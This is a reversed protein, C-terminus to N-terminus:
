PAPHAAFTELDAPASLPIETGGPGVSKPGSASSLKRAIRDLPLRSAAEKWEESANRPLHVVMRSRSFSAALISDTFIVPVTTFAPLSRLWPALAPPPPQGLAELRALNMRMLGATSDDFVMVRSEVPFRLPSAEPRAELLRGEKDVFSEATVSVMDGAWIRWNEDLTIEALDLGAQIALAYTFARAACVPAPTAPSVEVLRDGSTFLERSRQALRLAKERWAPDGTATFLAAYASVMRFSTGASASPNPAQESVRASRAEWLKKRGSEQLKAAEEVPLGLKAAAEALTMRYGLSNLRFFERAPDTDPALNGIESIGCLAIWLAAEQPALAEDIQKKSWLWNAPSMAESLRQNSFLGDETAYQQEAFRVAGLAVELTRADGTARYLTVLARVARAQTGCNRQPMPLDWSNGRRTSYVGGDLPDVMASSLVSRGFAAVIQKSRAAVEVPTDPDQSASALCQLIGLPLLGGSGSMTGADQEYLSGLQRIARDLLGNREEDTAPTSDPKALNTIRRDQDSASNKLVYGPSEQWMSTVLEAAEDFMTEIGASNSYPLSRWTVPNGDPSLVLIYPFSIPMKLEQSLMAAAIGAEPCLDLDVLVPVFERNLRDALGRSRDIADLTELCGPYRSSGLVAFILRETQKAQELTAPEWHQWHVPSSARRELLGKPAGSMANPALDRVMPAPVAAPASEKARERCSTSLALTALLCARTGSKLMEIPTM